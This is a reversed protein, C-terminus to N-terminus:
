GEEIDPFRFAALVRPWWREDLRTEIVRGAGACAHILSGHEGLIGVHQPDRRIRTLLVDGPRAATAPLPILQEGLAQGLSRGDPVRGYDTRDRVAIGVDRAVGAVLGVCDVGVGKLRGQHRFPTGVWGRAAALIEARTVM